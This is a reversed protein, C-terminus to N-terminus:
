ERGGAAGRGGKRGGKGPGTGQSDAHSIDAEPAGMADQMEAESKGPIPYSTAGSLYVNGNRDTRAWASVRVVASGDGPNFAGWYDPRKKDPAEDKFRNPFLVVQRPALTLGSYGADEGKGSTMAAIQTGADANRATASAAGNFMVRAEGTTKDIFDHAWLAFDREDESGPMAIRGDFAPRKDGPNKERNKFAVFNGTPRQDM